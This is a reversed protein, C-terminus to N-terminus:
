QGSGASGPVMTQALGDAVSVDGDLTSEVVQSSARCIPAVVRLEGSVEFSSELAEIDLKVAACADLRSTPKDNM